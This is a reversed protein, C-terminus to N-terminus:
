EGNNIVEEIVEPQPATVIALFDDFRKQKIAEIEVNTLGHNDPLVIADKLTYGQQTIEFEITIM